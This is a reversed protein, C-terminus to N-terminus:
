EIEEKIITMMKEIRQLFTHDTLVRKRANLAIQKREKQNKLYYSIKALLDNTDDYSVIEKGLEFHHEIDNKHEILQFQQACAVDFTRNNISMSKIQHKNHNQKLDAPRHPNLHISALPLLQNVESPALWEAKVTLRPYKKTPM